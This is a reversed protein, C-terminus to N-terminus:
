HGSTVYILSASSIKCGFTLWWPKCELRHHHWKLNRCVPQPWSNDPSDSLTKQGIPTAHFAASFSSQAQQLTKPWNLMYFPCLITPSLFCESQSNPYTSLRVFCSVSGPLSLGSGTAITESIVSMLCLEEKNKQTAEESTGNTCKKDSM